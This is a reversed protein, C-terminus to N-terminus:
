QCYPDVTITNGNIHVNQTSNISELDSSFCYDCTDDLVTDYCDPDNEIDEIQNRINDWDVPDGQAEDLAAEFEIDDILDRCEETMVLRTCLQDWATEFGDPCCDNQPM